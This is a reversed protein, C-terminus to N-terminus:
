RHKGFFAILKESPGPGAGGHPFQEPALKIGATNNSSIGTASQGGTWTLSRLSSNTAKRSLWPLTPSKSSFQEWRPVDLMNRCRTVIESFNGVVHDGSCRRACPIVSYSLNMPGPLDAWHLLDKGRHCFLMFSDLNMM